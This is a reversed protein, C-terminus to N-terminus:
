LNGAVPSTNGARVIGGPKDDIQGVIAVSSGNQHDRCFYSM